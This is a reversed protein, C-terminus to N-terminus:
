AERWWCASARRRERMFSRRSASRSTTGWESRALVAVKRSSTSLYTRAMCRRM